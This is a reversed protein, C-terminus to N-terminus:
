ANSNAIWVRLLKGFTEFPNHLAPPVIAVIVGTEVIGPLAHRLCSASRRNNVTFRIVDGNSIKKRRGFILHVIYYTDPVPLGGFHEASLMGLM